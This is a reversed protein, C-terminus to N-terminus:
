HESSLRSTIHSIDISAASRGVSGGVCLVIGYARKVVVTFIGAADAGGGPPPFFCAKPFFFLFVPFFYARGQYYKKCNNLLKKGKKHIKLLKFALIQFFKVSRM